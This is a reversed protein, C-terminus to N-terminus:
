AYSQEGTLHLFLHQTYSIYYLLATIFISILVCLIQDKLSIRYLNYPDVCIRYSIPIM